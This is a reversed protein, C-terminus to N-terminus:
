WKNEVIRDQVNFIKETKERKGSLALRITKFVSLNTLKYDVDHDQTM